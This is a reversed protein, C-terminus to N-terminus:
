LIVLMSCLSTYVSMDNSTYDYYEGISYGEIDHLDYDKWRLQLDYDKWRLQVDV